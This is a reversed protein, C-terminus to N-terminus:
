TGDDGNLARVEDRLMKQVKSRVVFVTSVKMDLRRAVEAGDLGEIATMRFADWKAPVVRRQVRAMAEALLERDFEADLRAVLDERAEVSELWSKLDSDGSGVAALKRVAWFDSLAHRTLVRLWKRFGRTADYEFARMKHVLRLLVNQTVDQADDERLRWQRCWGYIKPGYRDVFEAWAAQDAPDDRLRGLLTASTRSASHSVEM